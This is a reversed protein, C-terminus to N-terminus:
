NGESPRTWKVAMPRFAKYNETHLGQTPAYERSLAEIHHFYQKYEATSIHAFGQRGVVAYMHGWHPLGYEVSCPVGRSILFQAADDAYKEEAYSQVLVYNLNLRRPGAAIPGASRPAAADAPDTIAADPAAANPGTADTAPAGTGNSDTATSGAGTPGTGTSNPTASNGGPNSSTSDPTSSQMPAPNAAFASKAGDGDTATASAIASAAGDTFRVNLVDPWVPGQRISATSNPGAVVSAPHFWRGICIALIAALATSSGIIAASTRTLRDDATSRNNSAADAHSDASRGASTDADPSNARSSRPDSSDLNAPTFRASTGDPSRGDVAAAGRMARSPM